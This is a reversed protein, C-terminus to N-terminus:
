KTATWSVVGTDCTYAPNNSSASRPSVVRVTGSTGRKTVRGTVTFTADSDNVLDKRTIAFRGKKVKFQDLDASTRCLPPECVGDNVCVPTCGNSSDCPGTIGRVKLSYVATPMKGAFGVKLQITPMDTAFGNPSPVYPQNLSGHFKLTVFKGTAAQPALALAAVVALLAFPLGAFSLFRLPRIPLAEERVRDEGERSLKADTVVVLMAVLM